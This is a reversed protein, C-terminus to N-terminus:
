DPIGNVVRHTLKKDSRNLSDLLKLARALTNCSTLNYCNSDEKLWTGLDLRSAFVWGTITLKRVRHFGDSSAVIHPKFPDFLKMSMSVFLSIVLMAAGVIVLSICYAVWWSTM